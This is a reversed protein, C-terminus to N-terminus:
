VSIPSLFQAFWLVINTYTDSGNMATTISALNYGPFLFINSPIANMQVAGAVHELTVGSACWCVQFVESSSAELTTAFRAITNTGDTLSLQTNREAAAIVATFTYFVAILNYVLNDGLTFTFENGGGPNAVTQPIPTAPGPPSQGM